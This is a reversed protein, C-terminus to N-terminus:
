VGQMLPKTGQVDSLISSYEVKAQRTDFVLLTLENAIHVFIRTCNQKHESDRDGDEATAYESHLFNSVNLVSYHMHSFRFAFNLKCEDLFRYSGKFGRRSRAYDSKFVLELRQYVSIIPDPIDKGCLRDELNMVDDTDVTFVDIYDFLCRHGISLVSLECVRDNGPGGVHTPRAIVQV